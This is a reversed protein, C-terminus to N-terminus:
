HQLHSKDRFRRRGGAHGGYGCQYRNIHGTYSNSFKSVNFGNFSRNSWSDWGGNRQHNRGSLWVNHKNDCGYNHSNGCKGSPRVGRQHEGNVSHGRLRQNDLQHYKWADMLVAQRWEHQWGHSWEGARCSEHFFGSKHVARLAIASSCNSISSFGGCGVGCCWGSYILTKKEHTKRVGGLGSKNRSNRQFAM